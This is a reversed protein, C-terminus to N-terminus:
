ANSVIVYNTLLHRRVYSKDRMVNGVEGLM